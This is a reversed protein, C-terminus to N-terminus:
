LLFLSEQGLVIYMNRYKLIWPFDQIQNDESKHCDKDWSEVWDRRRAGEDDRVQM